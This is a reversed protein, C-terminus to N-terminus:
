LDEADAAPADAAVVAAVVPPAPAPEVVEPAAGAAASEADTIEDETFASEEEGGEEESDADDAAAPRKLAPKKLVPGRAAAPKKMDAAPRKKVEPSSGLSLLLNSVDLSEMKDPFQGCILGDQGEQMPAREEVSGTFRRVEKTKWDASLSVIVQCCACADTDSHNLHCM